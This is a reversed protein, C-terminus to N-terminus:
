VTSSPPGVFQNISINALTNKIAYNVPNWREKVKCTEIISCNEKGEIVCNTLGIPGDLAEIIDALSIKETDHSLRFGGNLGRISSVLGHRTLAGMIKSVTPLPINTKESLQVASCVEVTAGSMQCVLVIAYDALNTLKMM